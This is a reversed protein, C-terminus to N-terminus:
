IFINITAWEYICVITPRQISWLCRHLLGIKNKVAWPALALETVAASMKMSVRQWHFSGINMLVKILKGSYFVRAQYESTHFYM